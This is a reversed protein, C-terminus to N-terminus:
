DDGVVVIVEDSFYGGIPHHGSNRPDTAFATIGIALAKIGFKSKWCSNSEVAIAVNKDRFMPITADAFNQRARETVMSPLPSRKTASPLYMRLIAAPCVRWSEEVGDRSGRVKGVQYGEQLVCRKGVHFKLYPFFCRGGVAADEGRPAFVKAGEELAVECVASQAVISLHQAPDFVSGHGGQFEQKPVEVRVGHVVRRVFVSDFHHTQGIPMAHYSQELMARVSSLDGMVIGDWPQYLGVLVDQGIQAFARFAVNDVVKLHNAVVLALLMVKEGVM